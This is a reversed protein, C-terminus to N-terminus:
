QHPPHMADGDGQIKRNITTDLRELHPPMVYERSRALM